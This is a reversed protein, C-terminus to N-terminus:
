EGGSSAILSTTASGTSAILSCSTTNSVTIPYYKDGAQKSSRAATEIRVVHDKADFATRYSTVYKLFDDDVVVIMDGYKSEAKSGPKFIKCAYEVTSGRPPLHGISAVGFYHDRLEYAEANATLSTLSATIVVIATVLTTVIKKVNM